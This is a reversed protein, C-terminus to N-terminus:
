KFKNIINVLYEVNQAWEFVAFHQRKFCALNVKVGVFKVNKCFTLQM